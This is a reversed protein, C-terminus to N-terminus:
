RRVRSRYPSDAIPIGNMTITVYDTGRQEPVYSVTYTGDGEDTATIPGVENEGSVTIVVTEGGVSVPSGYENRAQIEINTARGKRGSPVKATSHEPSVIGEDVLSVFPSGSIPEGNMTITVEDTGATTPTYGALYTGDGLDTATIPGAENAGSVTLVVTAGGSSLPAGTEDRAQIVINTVAGAIGDPVEATSLEPSAPEVAVVSIFPSGGLRQGNMTIAVEDVGATTPLYSATYTGDGVDTATIPGAENAGSVTVVVTAGGSSLPYGEKDRAQVVIDTVSAVVGDPVDATSRDPSAEGAEITLLVDLTQPTNLAGAASVRVEAIYAGPILGSPDPEVLLESPATTGALTTSLWGGTGAYLTLTQLDSLVGGGLNTIQVTQAVPPTNGAPTRFELTFPSLGIVPTDLVVVAEVAITVPSNLADPSALVLTAHYAGEGLSGLLSSVTLTAPASTGSLALSLWGSPGGSAYEIAVSIGNLSGGGGNTISVIIPSPPDEGISSVFHLSPDSVALSPGPEVFVTASGRTGSQTAWITAQGPGVAQGEGTIPDIAFVSPADSSWTLSGTPLPQGAEDRVLATLQQTEGQLISISDPVVRVSSVVVEVIDRVTCGQVSAVAGCAAVAAFFRRSM